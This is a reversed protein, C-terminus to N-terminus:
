EPEEALPPSPNDIMDRVKDYYAQVDPVNRVFPYPVGDLRCTVNYSGDIQETYEVTDGQRITLEM